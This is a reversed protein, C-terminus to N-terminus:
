CSIGSHRLYIQESLCESPEDPGWVPALGLDHVLYLAGEPSGSDRLLKKLYNKRRTKEPNVIEIHTLLDVKGWDAPARKQLIAFVQGYRILVSPEAPSLTKAHNILLRAYDGVAFNRIGDRIDVSLVDLGYFGAMGAQASSVAHALLDQFSQWSLKEKSSVISALYFPRLATGDSVEFRLLKPTVAGHYSISTWPPLGTFISAELLRNM